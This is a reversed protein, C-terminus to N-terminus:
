NRPDDISDASESAESAQRDNISLSQPQGYLEPQLYRGIDNGTKPRVAEITMRRTGPDNRRAKVEWSVEMGPDGGAIRFHNDQIKDAVHLLPAPGGIATLQYRPDVNIADFYDPLAVWAEGRANLTVVGNYVNQPEPGEASYHVLWANGPDLPHDILFTKVGSCGLNGAAYVGYALADASATTGYVGYSRGTTRTAQGYVGYGTASDTEGWAGITAGTNALARGRVGVGDTSDNVFRGGETSGTTADMNVQMGITGSDSNIILPTSRSGGEITLGGNAGGSNNDDSIVVLGGERVEMLLEADADDVEGDKKIQFTDIGSS